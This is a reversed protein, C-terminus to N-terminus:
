PSVEEQGYAGGFLLDRELEGTVSRCSSVRISRIWRGEERGSRAVRSDEAQAM